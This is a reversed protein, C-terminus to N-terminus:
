YRPPVVYAPQMHDPALPWNSINKGASDSTNAHALFNIALMATMVYQQSALSQTFGTAATGMCPKGEAFVHPAQNSSVKRTLNWMKIGEGNAATPIDIRFEGLEHLKNSRDDLCYIIETFVKVMGPAVEVRKVKDCAVLADYENGFGDLVLRNEAQIQRLKREQGEAERQTRIYEALLKAAKATKDAVAKETEQLVKGLRGASEQVFAERNKEYRLAEMEARQSAVEAPTLNFPGLAMVQELIAKMASAGGLSHPLDMLVFLTTGHLEAVVTSGDHIQQGTGSPKLGNCQGSHLTEGFVLNYDVEYAAADLPLSWFRLYLKTTDAEVASLNKHPNSVVVDMGTVDAFEQLAQELEVIHELNNGIKTVKPM